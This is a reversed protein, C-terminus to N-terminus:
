LVCQNSRMGRVYPSVKGKKPGATDGNAQIEMSYTFERSFKDYISFEFVTVSALSIFSYVSINVAGSLLPLM